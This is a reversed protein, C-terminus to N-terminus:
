DLTWRIPSAPSSWFELSRGTDVEGDSLVCTNMLACANKPPNKKILAIRCSICPTHLGQALHWVHPLIQFHAAARQPIHTHLDAHADSLSIYTSGHLHEASQLGCDSISIYTCTSWYGPRPAASGARWGESRDSECGCLGIRKLFGWVDWHWLSIKMYLYIQLKHTLVCYSWRVWPKVKMNEFIECLSSFVSCYTSFKLSTFKTVKKISQWGLHHPLNWLMRSWEGSQGVPSMFGFKRETYGCQM